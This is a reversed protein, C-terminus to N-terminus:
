KAGGKGAETHQGNASPKANGNLCPATRKLDACLKSVSDLEADINLGDGVASRVTLRPGYNSPIAAHEIVDLEGTFLRPMDAEAEAAAKGQRVKIAALEPPVEVSEAAPTPAAAPPIAALPDPQEAAAQQGRVYNRFKNLDEDSLKCDEASLALSRPRSPGTTGSPECKFTPLFVLPRDASQRLGYRARVFPVLDFAPPLSAPFGGPMGDKAEIKFRASTGQSTRKGEVRRGRHPGGDLVAILQRGAAESFVAVRQHFERERWTRIYAPVYYELQQTSTNGDHAALECLACPGVRAGCLVKHGKTRVYHVPQEVMDGLLVVERHTGVSFFEFFKKAQAPTFAGGGAGSHPLVSSHGM